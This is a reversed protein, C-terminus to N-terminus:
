RPLPASPLTLRLLAGGDPHNSATVTGGNRQVVDRVIALGLGSGPTSRVSEARYFRAFVHPLDAEAFGRGHDRVEIQAAGDVQSVAVDIPAGSPDFKAANTLLNVVARQVQVGRLVADAEGHVHVRERDPRPLRRAAARVLETLDVESPEEATASVGALDVLSNVLTTLEQAESIVDEAIQARTGQDLSPHRKLVEANSRISAIPTRLEHGADNVLQQQQAQSADLATLMEDFARSLRGAEDPEDTRVDVALDGTRTIHEAAATLRRLPAVLAGAAFWGAAAAIAAVLLGIASIRALLARLVRAQESADVALVLVGEPGVPRAVARFPTDDAQTTFRVASGDRAQGLVVEAVPVQESGVVVRVTGDPGHVQAVVRDDIRLRPPIGRHGPGSGMETAMRAVRALSQDLEAYLQRRTTQVAALAVALTALVVVVAIVATIRARFSVTM